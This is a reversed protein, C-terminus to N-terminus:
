NYVVFSLSISLTLSDHTITFLITVFVSIFLFLRVEGYVRGYSNAKAEVMRGIRQIIVKFAEGGRMWNNDTPVFASMAFVMFKDIHKKHHVKHNVPFCGFHPVMKVHRRRVLCFFWKEDSQLTVFQVKDAVM